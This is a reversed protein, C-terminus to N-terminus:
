EENYDQKLKNIFANAFVEMGYANYHLADGLCKAYNDKNIHAALDFLHLNSKTECLEKFMQNYELRREETYSYGTYASYHNTIIYIEPIIYYGNVKAVYNETIYTTMIEFANKVKSTEIGSVNDNIGMLIFVLNPTGKAGLTRLRSVQFGGNSNVSAASGSWSNNIGLTAGIGQITKVWWTQTALTVPYEQFGSYRPYYFQNDGSYLSNYKSYQNYYTSVSDGMMSVISEKLSLKGIPAIDYKPYIVVSETLKEEFNFETETNLNYWGLFSVYMSEDVSFNPATPESVYDGYQLTKKTVEEKNEDLVTFLVEDYLFETKPYFKVDKTLITDSQTWGIVKVIYGTGVKDEVEPYTIVTGYDNTETKLVTVRDTDYFTYTYQEMAWVAYITLNETIPATIDYTLKDETEYHSFIGHPITKELVTASEGRKVTIEENEIDHGYVITLTVEKKKCSTLLCFMFIVFIYIYKRM